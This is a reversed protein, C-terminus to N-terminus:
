VKEKVLGHKWFWFYPIVNDEKYFQLAVMGHPDMKEGTYFTYNDFNALIAKVAGSAAKMFAKVEDPSATAELKEKVDKMYGKIFATYDKKTFSTPQLRMADVLNNVSITVAGDIEAADEGGVDVGAIEEGGETKQIVKTVVELLCGEVESVEFSDSLLEDETLIDKFIIM